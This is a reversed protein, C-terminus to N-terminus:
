VRQVAIVDQHGDWAQETMSILRLNDRSCVLTSWWPLRILSIGYGPSNPYDAYGFYQASNGGYMADSLSITRNVLPEIKVHEKM